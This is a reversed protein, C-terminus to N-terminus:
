AGKIGYLAFQTYQALNGGNCTIAISDIANTNLWLGSEFEVYNVASTTNTNNGSLSRVTKYKSTSTYDLIDIVGASFCSAAGGGGQILGGDIGTLNQVAGVPVSAGDGLMYHRVYNTGSDSNFRLVASNGDNTSSVDRAIYRIQLHKYTSPISSFTITSTGGSGVTTTAISEYSTAAGAALLAGYGRASANALTTILPM